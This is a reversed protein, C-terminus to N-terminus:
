LFIQYMMIHILHKLLSDVRIKDYFKSSTYLFEFLKVYKKLTIFSSKENSNKCFHKM